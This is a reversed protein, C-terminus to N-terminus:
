EPQVGICITRFHESYPKNVDIATFHEFGPSGQVMEYGSEAMWRQKVYLAYDVSVEFGGMVPIRAITMGGLTHMDKGSFPQEIRIGALYRCQQWSTTHPTDLFVGYYEPRASVLGRAAAWQQLKRFLPIIGEEQSLYTIECAVKVQEMRTITVPYQQVGPSILETRERIAQQAQQRYQEATLQYRARFARAFVSPSSFGCDIAIAYVSKKPYFLLEKTAKELRLRLLYQKPAEGTHQKFLRHFHYPSYHAQRALVELSLAQDFHQQIYYLINDIVQM